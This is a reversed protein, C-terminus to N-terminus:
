MPRFKRLLLLLTLINGMLFHPGDQQYFAQGQHFNSCRFIFKVPCELQVIKGRVRTSTHDAGRVKHYFPVSPLRKIEKCIPLSM